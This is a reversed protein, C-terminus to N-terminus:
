RSRFWAVLKWVAVAASVVLSPIAVLTTMFLMGGYGAFPENCQFGGFGFACHSSSITSSAALVAALIVTAAISATPFPRASM